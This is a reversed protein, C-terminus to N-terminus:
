CFLVEDVIQVAGDKVIYHVDQQYFEKACLASMVFRANMLVCYLRESKKRIRLIASQFETIAVSVSYINL